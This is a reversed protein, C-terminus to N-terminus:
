LWEVGRHATVFFLSDERAVMEHEEGAEMLLYDGAKATRGNGLDMSGKIMYTEEADIHRHRPLTAGKRIRIFGTIGGNEAERLMCVQLGDGDGMPQFEHENATIIKM